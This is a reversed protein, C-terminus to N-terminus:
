SVAAQGSKVAKAKVIAEGWGTQQLWGIASNKGRRQQNKRGRERCEGEEV